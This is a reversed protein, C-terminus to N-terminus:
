EQQKEEPEAPCIHRYIKNVKDEINKMKLGCFQSQRDVRDDAIEEAERGHRILHHILTTFMVGIMATILGCLVVVVKVWMSDTPATAGVAMTGIGLVALVGKFVPMLNEYM